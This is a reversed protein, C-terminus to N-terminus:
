DKTAVFLPYGILLGSLMILWTKVGEWLAYKFETDIVVWTYVGEIIGIPTAFAGCVIFVFSVFFLITKM